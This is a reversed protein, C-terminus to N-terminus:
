PRGVRLRRPQLRRPAQGVRRSRAPRPRDGHVARGAAAHRPVWTGSSGAIGHIMVLLPGSAPRGTPSTTATSRRGAPSPPKARWSATPPAWDRCRCSRPTRGPTPPTVPAAPPWAPRSALTPCRGTAGDGCCRRLGGPGPARTRQWYELLSFPWNQATRGTANKYWTNVSSVGWAMRLNEADVQARQLRRAREVKPEIAKAGEALLARICGVVYHVECESFYTISGNVVINTNPGYLLFLNPFGPLTIGSTPGPTARGGTTCSSGTAGSSGCRCSSTPRPSGPATSSSTPRTSCATRRACARRAHDRRDPDHRPRRRGAHDHAALGRRRPHVAELVAPLRADGRSCTPGIPSSPRSTGPSSSACSSTSRASARRATDWDPDVRAAVM